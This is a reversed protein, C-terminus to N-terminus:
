RALAPLRTGAFRNIETALGDLPLIREALGALAVAGPMGWVM